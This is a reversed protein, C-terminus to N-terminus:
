HPACDPCIRYRARVAISSHLRRAPRDVRSNLGSSGWELTRGFVVSGDKARLTIGTCAAVRNVAVILVAASLTTVFTIYMGKKMETRM